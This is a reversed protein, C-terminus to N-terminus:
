LRVVRGMRVSVSVVAPLFTCVITEAHGCMSVCHM